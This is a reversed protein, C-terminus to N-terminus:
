KKSGAKKVPAKVAAGVPEALLKDILKRLNTEEMAPGMWSEDAGHQERVIGKRDVIALQPMMMRVISPFQLFEQARTHDYVGIPFAASTEQVFGPIKPGAGEDIALGIVRLGKDNYERQLRGLLRASAKCGPCHTLLFEVVVVKGKLESLRIKEGTQSIYQLEAAPRPVNAAPLPALLCFGLLAPFVVRM